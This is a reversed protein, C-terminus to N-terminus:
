GRSSTIARRNHHSWRRVACEEPSGCTITWSSSSVRPM